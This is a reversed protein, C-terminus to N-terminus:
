SIVKEDLPLYIHFTAGEGPEGDASIVGHHNEVIKKCISLGIGTGPYATKGHLRQFVEFIKKRYQQDFGIGNDSIELHYYSTDPHIGEEAISTGEETEGTIKIVPPTDAKSFKLSNGILNTLLQRFQFPVITLVPLDTSEIVAHKEEIKEKLDAKVEQVLSNLNTSEYHNEATNVRSYSLLDEILTRMRTAASQIRKFYDQGFASLNAKEKEVLLDTFTQIKRLPEQLDHSAVYTFSTLEQNSKELDSNKAELQDAYLKLQDQAIKQATLDRTVKSFGIVNGDNDHLATIVISGWFRTGDKRVRWGEHAAKGFTRAKNILKSPLDRQRDEPTYFIKFNKGIIEDGRYGKINEAGKNWNLITGDLDLMLIAYDQVEDIMHHYREESKRLEENKRELEGTRRRVEKELSASLNKQDDIDTCSGYWKMVRGDRSKIPVAKALFWRGHTPREPDKFRFELQLAEGTQLALKWANMCTQVDEPFIMEILQRMTVPREGLLRKWQRNYYDFFGDPRATWIMQPVFDALQRFREKSEIIEQEAEHYHTIDVLTNIAGTLNGDSDFLPRPYPRVNRRTGDPREVIIEGADVPRRERIAIAMPSEDIPIPTGDTRYLRWSGCWMNKGIVPTIGWLEEAANNYFVIYGNADCVYLATASAEVIQRHRFESEELTEFLRKRDTIDLTFCRSHIFKSDEWFVNANILVWRLSGDKSKLAAEFKDVTENNELRRLFEGCAAKDVHFESLHHGIYEEEDYGLMDLEARNAWTIIGKADIWSLGVSANDVYDQLEATKRRLAKEVSRRDTVDNSLGTYGLVEGNDAIDPVYNVEVKRMGDQQVDLEFQVSEGQWIKELHPNIKKFVADGLVERVTKGTIDAPAKGFWSAYATNVYRFRLDRDVYSILAPVTDLISAFRADDREPEALINSKEPPKM